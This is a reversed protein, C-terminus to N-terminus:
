KRSKLQLRKIHRWVTTRGLGLERAQDPAPRDPTVLALRQRLEQRRMSAVYVRDTGYADRAEVEVRRVLDPDLDALDQIRRCIDGVLDGTMVFGARRDATERAL